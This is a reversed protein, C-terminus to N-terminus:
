IINVEKLYDKDLRAAGLGILIAAVQSIIIWMMTTGLTEFNVSVWDVVQLLVYLVSISLVGSFVVKTATSDMKGIKFRMSKVFVLGLVGLLFYMFAGGTGGASAEIEEKHNVYIAVAPGGFGAVYYGGMLIWMYFRNLM